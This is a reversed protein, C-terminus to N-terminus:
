LNARMTGVVAQKYLRKLCLRPPQPPDSDDRWISGFAFEDRQLICAHHAKPEIHEIAAPDAQLFELAEAREAAVHFPMQLEQDVRPLKGFEGCPKGSKRNFKQDIMHAM